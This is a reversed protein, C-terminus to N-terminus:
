CVFLVRGSLLAVRSCQQPPGPLPEPWSMSGQATLSFGELNREEGFPLALYGTACEEKPGIRDWLFIDGTALVSTFLCHGVSHEEAAEGQAQM